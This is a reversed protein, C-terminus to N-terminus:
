YVSSTVSPPAPPLSGISYSGGNMSYVWAAQGPQLTLTGTEASSYGSQPSYIFAQDGTQLAVTETSSFPNGIMIWEKVNANVSYYSSHDNPMNVTQASPEHIWVGDGNNNTSTQYDTGNWFYINKVGAAQAVSADVLNWGGELAISTGTEGSTGSSNTNGNGNSNTNQAFGSNGESSSNNTGNSGSQNSSTDSNSSNTSNQSNGIDNIQYVYLGNVTYVALVNNELSMESVNQFDQNSITGLVTGSAMDILTLNNNGNSVLFYNDTAFTVEPKQPIGQDNQIVTSLQNKATNYTQIIGNQDIYINTSGNPMNATFYSDWSNGAVPIPFHVAGGLQLNDQYITAAESSNYSSGFSYLSSQDPTLGVFNGMFDATTTTNGTQTSYATISGDQSIVYLTSGDPSPYLIDSHRPSLNTLLTEDVAGSQANMFLVNLYTDVQNSAQQSVGVYLTANDPSIAINEANNVPWTATVTGQPSIVVIKNGSLAYITGNKSQVMQQENYFSPSTINDNISVMGLLTSQLNSQSQFAAFAPSVTLAPLVLSVVVAIGAFGLKKKMYKAGIM